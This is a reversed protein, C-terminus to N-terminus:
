GKLINYIDYYRTINKTLPIKNLEYVTGDKLILKFNLDTIKYILLLLSEDENENENVDDESINKKIITNNIESVCYKRKRKSHNIKRLFIRLNLLDERFINTRHSFQLKIEGDINLEKQLLTIISKLQLKNMEFSKCYIKEGLDELSIDEKEKKFPSIFINQINCIEIDNKDTFLKSCPNFFICPM